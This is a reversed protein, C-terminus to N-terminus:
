WKSWHKSTQSANIKSHRVNISTISIVRVAYCIHPPQKPEITYDTHCWLYSGVWVMLDELNFEFPVWILLWGLHCLHRTIRSSNFLSEHLSSGADLWDTESYHNSVNLFREYVNLRCGFYFNIIVILTSYRIRLRDMKGHLGTKGSKRNERQHQHLKYFTKISESSRWSIKLQWM